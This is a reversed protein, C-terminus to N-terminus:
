CPVLYSCEQKAERSRSSSVSAKSSVLEGNLTQGVTYKSVDESEDKTTSGNSDNNETMHLSTKFGGMNKAMGESRTLSTCGLVRGRPAFGRFAQTVVSLVVVALM